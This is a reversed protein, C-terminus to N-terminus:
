KVEKNLFDARGKIIIGLLFGALSSLTMLFANGTGQFMVALFGGASVMQLIGATYESVTRSILIQWFKILLKRNM